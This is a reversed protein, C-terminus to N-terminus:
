LLMRHKEGRMHCMAEYWLVPGKKGVLCTLM